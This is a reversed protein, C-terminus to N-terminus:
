AGKNRLHVLDGIRVTCVGPSIPVLNVGFCNKTLSQLAATPQRNPLSDPTGTAPDIRPVQCRECPKPAEFLADAVAVQAWRHEEFPQLNHGDIVVNPRFREMALAPLAALKCVAKRSTDSVLLLPYGDAFSVVHQASGAGEVPRKHHQPMRVLRLRPTCLATCLWAAVADGCDVADPVVHKWVRAARRVAADDAVDCLVFDPCEPATLVLHGAENWFPRITTMRPLQRQTQFAGDQERVVMLLRDHALGRPTLQASAVRIGRCGKIPYVFLDRVVARAQSAHRRRTALMFGLAMSLLICACTVTAFLAPSVAELIPSPAPCSSSM